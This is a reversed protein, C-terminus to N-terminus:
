GTLSPAPAVAQGVADCGRDCARFLRGRAALREIQADRNIIGRAVRDETGRRPKGADGIRRALQERLEDGALRAQAVDIEDDAGAALLPQGVEQEPFAGIGLEM